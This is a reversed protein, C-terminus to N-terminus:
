PEGTIEAVVLLHSFGPRNEAKLQTIAIRIRNSNDACSYSSGGVVVVRAHQVRRLLSCKCAKVRTRDVISLLSLSVIVVKGSTLENGM